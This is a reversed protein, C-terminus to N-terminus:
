DDCQGNRCANHLVDSAENVGNDHAHRILDHVEGPFVDTKIGQLHGIALNYAAHPHGNDSAKRFWKMALEEDKEVGKGHLLRQAVVHQAHSHGLKAYAHSLHFHFEHFYFFCYYLLGLCLVLCLCLAAVALWGQPEKIRGLYDKGGFRVVDNLDSSAPDRPARKCNRNIYKTRTTGQPLLPAKETSKGNRSRVSSGSSAHAMPVSRTGMLRSVVNSFGLIIERAM